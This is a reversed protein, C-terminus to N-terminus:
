KCDKNNDKAETLIKALKAKTASRDKQEQTQTKSYEKSYIGRAVTVKGTRIGWKQKLLEPHEKAHKGTMMPSIGESTMKTIHLPTTGDAQTTYISEETGVTTLINVVDYEMNKDKYTGIIKVQVKSGRPAVMLM